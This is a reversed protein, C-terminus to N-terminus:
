TGSSIDDADNSGDSIAAVTAVTAAVGAILFLPLLGAVVKDDKKVSSTSRAGFSTFASQSSANAVPVSASARTGAQAAVPAVILGLAAAGVLFNKVM